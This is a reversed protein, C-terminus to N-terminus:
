LEKEMSTIGRYHYWHALALALADSADEGGNFNEEKIGLQSLVMTQVQMKSAAGSGTVSKKVSRPAYEFLRTKFKYSQVLCAGRVHGVKFASQVNKGLFIKELVFHSPKSVSIVECLRKSLNYLKEELTDMKSLDIVGWRSQFIEGETTSIYGYGTFRSGPDVGLIGLCKKM